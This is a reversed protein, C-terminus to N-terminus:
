ILLDYKAAPNKQPLEIRECVPARRCPAKAGYNGHAV